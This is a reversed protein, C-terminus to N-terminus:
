IEFYVFHLSIKIFSCLLCYKYAMQWYIFIVHVDFILLQFLFRELGRVGMVLTNAGPGWQPCLGWVGM